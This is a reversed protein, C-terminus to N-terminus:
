MVLVLWFIFCQAVSPVSLYKKPMFGDMLRRIARESQPQLARLPLHVYSSREKSPAPLAIWPPEAAAAACTLRLSCRPEM